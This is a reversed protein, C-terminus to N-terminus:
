WIVKYLDRIDMNLAKALRVMISLGPEKLNNEVDNIHTTSIGTRRSLQELTIHKEKRIQKVLIEIRMKGGLKTKGNKYYKIMIEILKPPLTIM